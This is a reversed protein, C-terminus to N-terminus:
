AFDFLFPSPLWLSRTPSPPPNFMKIFYFLAIQLSSGTKFFLKGSKVMWYLYVWCYYRRLVIVYKSIFRFVVIIIVFNFVICQMIDFCLILFPRYTNQSLYLLVITIFINILVYYRQFVYNVRSRGVPILSTISHDINKVNSYCSSNQM